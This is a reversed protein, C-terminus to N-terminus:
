NTYILGAPAKIQQAPHGNGLLLWGAIRLDGYGSFCSLLITAPLFSVAVELGGAQVM